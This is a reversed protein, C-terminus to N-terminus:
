WMPRFGDSKKLLGNVCGTAEINATTDLKLIPAGPNFQLRGMDIWMDGTSQAFKIYYKGTGIDAVSRWQTSSVNPEGPLEYGYPVSVVGMISEICGLAEAYGYNKPVHNIFYSARVFRDASRVTGPLMYKGGIGEWYENIAMMKDLTPDNTLVTYQPGRYLRLDGDTYEMVLTDGSRDTLAWHLTSVTGGDFTKGFIAFENAQLWSYAEEVTAFNDIFYSVLMALSVVPTDGTGTAIKYVTGKCFLGNMVLGAENMGETVGGDYGVAIVSGYKSTWELCPASPMSTKHVGQPYVYLNTPIPTRWDLTRGVMIIDTDGKYVVRSCADSQFASSIAMVTTAAIIAFNRMFLLKKNIFVGPPAIPEAGRSSRCMKKPVMIIATM